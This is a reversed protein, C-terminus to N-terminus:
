PGVLYTQIAHAPIRCARQEGDIALAFSRAEDRENVVIAAVGGDPNAFAISQLADTTASTDIRHAGPRVYRSFHGIYYFSSQYRVTRANTDVLVPADCFNGVHNPGGRLDLAINWDLWASVGHSLDGIINRAYREGVSWDGPKAGGEVCGETFVVQKDPYKELVRQAAAYDDSVYWHVALGV